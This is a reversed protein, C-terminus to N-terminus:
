PATMCAGGARAPGAPACPSTGAGDCPGAGVRPGTRDDAGVTPGRACCSLTPARPATPRRTALRARPGAPGVWQEAKTRLIQSGHDRRVQQGPPLGALRLGAGSNKRPRGDVGGDRARIRRNSRRWQDFLSRRRLYAGGPSRGPPHGVQGRLEWPVQAAKARLVGHLLDLRLVRGEHRLNSLHLLKERFKGQM